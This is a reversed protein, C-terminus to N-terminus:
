IENTLVNGFMWRKGFKCLICCLNNCIELVLVIDSPLIIKEHELKGEIGQTTYTYACLLNDSLNRENKIRALTGVILM